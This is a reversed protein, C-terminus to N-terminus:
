SWWLPKVDTLFEVTCDEGTFLSALAPNRQLHLEAQTPDPHRVGAGVMGLGAALHFPEVLGQLLPKASLRRGCRDRLQLALQVPETAVVVGDPRVAGQAAAGWGLRIGGSGFRHRGPWDDAGVVPEPGVLDVGAPGDGDTVVAPEVVDADAGVQAAGRHQQEDAIQVDADGVLVGAFQDALEGQIRVAVVLGASEWGAWGFSCGCGARCGSGPGVAGGCGADLSAAPWGCPVPRSGPSSPAVMSAPIGFVGRFHLSTM